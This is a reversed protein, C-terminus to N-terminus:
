AKNAVLGAVSIVTELLSNLHHCLTAHLARLGRSCYSLLFSSCFCLWVLGLAAVTFLGVRQEEKRVSIIVKKEPEMMRRQRREKGKQKEGKERGREM